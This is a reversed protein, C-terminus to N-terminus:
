YDFHHKTKKLLKECLNQNKISGKYRKDMEFEDCCLTTRAVVLGKDRLLLACHNDSGARCHTCGAASYNMYEVTLRCIKTITKM